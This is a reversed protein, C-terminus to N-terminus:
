LAWLLAERPSDAALVGEGAGEPHCSSPVPFPHGRGEWGARESAALGGGM